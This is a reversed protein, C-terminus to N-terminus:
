KEHHKAPKAKTTNIRAAEKIYSILIKDSPLDNMGTIKGFSGMATKENIELIHAADKMEKARWFGFACHKKFAAMWCIIGGSHIFFPMSWKMTEEVDPLVAHVLERLYNLIPQAFAEANTIYHDIRKDRPM